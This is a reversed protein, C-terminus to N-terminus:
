GCYRFGRGRAGYLRGQKSHRTYQLRKKKNREERCDIYSKLAYFVEMDIYYRRAIAEMSYMKSQSLTKKIRFVANRTKSYSVGHSVRRTNM